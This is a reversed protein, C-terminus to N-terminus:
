LKVEAETVLLRAKLIGARVALRHKEKNAAHWARSKEAIKAKTKLSHLLGKPRGWVKLKINCDM